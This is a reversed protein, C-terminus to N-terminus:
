CLLKLRDLWTDKLIESFPWDHIELPAHLTTELACLPHDHSDSYGGAQCFVPPMNLLAFAELSNM